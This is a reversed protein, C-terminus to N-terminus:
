LLGSAVTGAAAAALFFTPDDETSRGMSRCVIGRTDPLGRPPEVDARVHRAWIGGAELAADVREQESAELRPVAVLASALAVRGLSTITHHSVGRHRERADAFSMRLAAVPRGGVAAVANIAEGQAIGGHGFPTGTGTVGPGISAVVVDAAGVHRAAILGSHLTVAEIDGGFAQGCSVTLDLLGSAVCSSALNSTALPLSADDLMCYAVRADPRVEKIAAAVMPMQSHLSCCVVPMGGVDMASAMTEHHPSEQAEVALVDRQMPTYRLKMIHGPSPDDLSVGRPSGAEPIRTVVIHVGGTGLSLDVATTNLLVRDRADCRGTLSTHCDAVGSAGDDAVVDLRQIGPRERVVGIVTGWVLRM